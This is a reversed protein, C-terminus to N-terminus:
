ATLRARLYAVARGWAIKASAADYVRADGERMFAHGADYVFLEMEGGRANVDAMLAGAEDAKAWGDVKAFHAQIPVRIKAADWYEAVPIGYFPVACALGDVASAAAFAMAGGMCFGVVGVKTCGRSKLAAVSAAIDKMAESTKLARMLEGARADDTAVDGHYLDPALAVFGEAALRDVLTKVSPVLGHWEHVVVVGASTPTEPMAIAGSLGARIEITDTM